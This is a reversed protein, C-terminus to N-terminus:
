RGFRRMYASPTCGECHRFRRSFHSQDAFGLAYAIDTLSMHGLKIMSKAREIRSSEIYAAPSVGVHKRFLRGFHFRSLGAAAAVEDLSIRAYPQDEIYALARRISAPSIDRLPEEDRHPSTSYSRMVHMLLATALSDVLVDQAPHPARDLELSFLAGLHEFFPDRIRFHNAVRDQPGGIGRVETTLAVLTYQSFRVTIHPPINGDWTSATGGPQISAEGVRGPGEYTLGCRQSRVYPLDALNITLLHHDRPAAILDTAVYASLKDISIGNWSRGKITAHAPEAALARRAEPITVLSSRGASAM